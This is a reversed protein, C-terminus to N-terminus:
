VFYRSEAIVTGAPVQRALEEADLAFLPSIELAAAPSGDPKKAVRARARELWDAALHILASRVTAPSDAGEGNKLPAFEEARLAEVVTWREALPLVDFIFREFKLANNEKPQVMQGSADLHPVKKRAVHFPLGEPDRTVKELFALDFLHIAPSGTWLFLRGQADTEQALEPTLDSYEIITCRGDVTAFVGMPEKPGTKAVVKSSVEARAALHHGLFLPDAVRVLPNDVQFYFVQRIGRQKMQELLGSRALATLTGGHGDPSLFLSGPSELLLKGSSLDVSPMTGQCFFHVEHRPLGSFQQEEFYAVTEDHTAPSTMILFPIPAGYRRRSALVKEAHVQFLTKQSIPGVPFMGKPHEFGLRSGQGGAVLLVAVQGAWLAAEGERRRAEDDPGQRPIVPVAGIRERAPLESAVQKRSLQRLEDLDLNRLQSVLNRRQLDSLNEWWALVHEQQHRRLSARLDDPVQLM